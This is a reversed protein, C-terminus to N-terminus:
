FLREIARVLDLRRDIRARDRGGGGM